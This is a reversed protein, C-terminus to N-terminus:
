QGIFRTEPAVVTRVYHRWPAPRGDGHYTDCGSNFPELDEPRGRDGLSPVVGALVARSRRGVQGNASATTRALFGSPRHVDVFAASAADLEFMRRLAVRGSFESYALMKSFTAKSLEGRGSLDAAAPQNYDCPAFPSRATARNSKM